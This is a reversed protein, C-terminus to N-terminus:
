SHIFGGCGGDQQIERPVLACFYRGGECLSLEANPDSVDLTTDSVDTEGREWWAGVASYNGAAEAAYKPVNCWTNRVLDFDMDHFLYRRIKLQKYDVRGRVIGHNPPAHNPVFRPIEQDEHWHGQHQQGPRVAPSKQAPSQGGAM